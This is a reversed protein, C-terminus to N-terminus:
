DNSLFLLVHESQQKHKTISHKRCPVTHFLLLLLLLMLLVYWTFCCSGTLSGVRYVSFLMIM